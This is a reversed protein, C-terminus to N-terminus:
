ESSLETLLAVVEDTLVSRSERGGGTAGGSTDGSDSVQRTARFAAREEESMDKNAGQMGQEGSSQAGMDIGKEAYFEALDDNTLRMDAIAMLQETTMSKVLQTQLAEIEVQASDQVQELTAMAQWLPLADAAQEATVAQQSGELALIGLALQNRLSAANDYEITLIEESTPALTDSTQVSSDAPSDADPATNEVSSCASVLLALLIVILVTKQKM